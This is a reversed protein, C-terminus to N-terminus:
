SFASDETKEEESKEAKGGIMRMTDAVIETVYRKNGEKDDYSRSKIKGEIYVQSGKKLYKECILSLPEWVKINHWETDTIREGDKNKYTESTAIVFSAVKKGSSLTHMEPDKGLNGLM